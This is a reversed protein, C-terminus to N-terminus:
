SQPFPSTEGTFSVFVTPGHTCVYINLTGGTLKALCKLVSLYKLMSCSYINLM